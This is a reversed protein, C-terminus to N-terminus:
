CPQVAKESSLSFPDRVQAADVLNKGQLFEVEEAEEEIGFYGWGAFVAYSGKLAKELSGKDELSGEVLELRETRVAESHKELLQKAKEASLNRVLAHVLFPTTTLIATVVGSGQHGTAGVVTVTQPSSTSM